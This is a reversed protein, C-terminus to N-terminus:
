GNPRVEILHMSGAPSTGTRRGYYTLVRQELKGCSQDVSLLEAGGKRTANRVARSWASTRTVRGKTTGNM